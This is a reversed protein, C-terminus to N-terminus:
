AVGRSLDRGIAQMQHPLPRPGSLLAYRGLVITLYLTAKWTRYAPNELRFGVIFAPVIHVPKCDKHPLLTSRPIKPDSAM